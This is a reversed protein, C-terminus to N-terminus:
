FGHKLCAAALEDATLLRHCEIHMGDVGGKAFWGGWYLGFDLCFAMLERVSGKQGVLAPQRGGLNWPVNIDIATGWAHGSLTSTSGRIFRTVWCGGFSVILHSLGKKEIARFWAVYQPAALKHMSIPKSSLQPITVQIINTKAWDDTLRIHEPNGPRPDAVYKFAGFVAARQANTKLPRTTVT